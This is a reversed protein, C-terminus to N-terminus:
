LFIYCKVECGNNLFQIDDFSSMGALAIGRGHNHTARDPEIQMYQTWDFGNGEDAITLTVREQSKQLNVTVRKDKYEPLQLRKEIEAQWLGQDNLATKEDYGINLNGHEVANILMEHIGFLVKFPNPYLSSLYLGLQRAESITSFSFDVRSIMNTVRQYNALEDSAVKRAVAEYTAASVLSVLMDKNYPKTLYYYVGANIGEVVQHKLAAGTQMIVPIHEMEPDAKLKANLEMGDMNPMMRDLLLVDINKHEKQLIEWADLGDMATIIEFDTDELYLRILNLNSTDDDVALIRSSM